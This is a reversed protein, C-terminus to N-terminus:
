RHPRVLHGHGPALPGDDSTFVPRGRVLTMVVRAKVTRGTFPSQRHRSWTTEPAITWPSDPDIMVLDADAGPALFGKGPLRLLRAAATTLRAIETLHLRGDSILLPLALGVGDIGAWPSAGVKLSPPCPSHDSAMLDIAGNLLHDWLREQNDLDRIPPNCHATAGIGAAESEDLFLYHPCTEVTVGPWWRAEDVAGAASVHVVHLRAGADAALEAAWRV